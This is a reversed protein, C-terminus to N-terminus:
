NATKLPLQWSSQDWRLRLLGGEIDIMFDEIIEDKLLVRDLRLEVLNKSEDYRQGNQGTEKNIYLKGSEEELMTFLTYEGAPIKSGGIVLDVESKLHTAKNAGTRWVKGYPVVKGFIERGRRRPQGFDLSIAGGGMEVSFSGRGSLQGFGKGEKEIESFRKWLEQFNVSDVRNVTLKRTTNAADLHILRGLTDITVDMSGRFPHTIKVKNSDMKEFKFKQKTEGALLTIEMSEEKSASLVRLIRDYQWHVYDHAPLQVDVEASKNIALHDIKKGEVDRSEYEYAFDQGGMFILGYVRKSAVPSRVIAQSKVFNVGAQVYEVAVTDKGLTTILGFQEVGQAVLM